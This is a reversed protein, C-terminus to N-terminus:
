ERTLPFGPDAQGSREVRPERKRRPRASATSERETLLARYEAMATKAADNLPVLREKGGKGRV